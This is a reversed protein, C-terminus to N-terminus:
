INSFCKLTSWSRKFLPCLDILIDSNPCCCFRYKHDGRKEKVRLTLFISFSLAIEVAFSILISITLIAIMQFIQLCSGDGCFTKFFIRQLYWSYLLLLACFVFKILCWMCDNYLRYVRFLFSFSTSGAMNRTILSIGVGIIGDVGVVKGIITINKMTSIAVNVNIDTRSWLTIVAKRAEALYFSVTM